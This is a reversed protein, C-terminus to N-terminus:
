RGLIRVREISIEPGPRLLGELPQFPLFWADIPDLELDNKYGDVISRFRIVEGVTQLNGRPLPLEYQAMSLPYDPTVLLFESGPLQGIPPNRYVEWGSEQRGQRADKLLLYPTSVIAGSTPGYRRYAFEIRRSISAASEEFQPECEPGGLWLIPRTKPVNNVIWRGALTRTDEMALLRVFRLSDWAQGATLFLLLAAVSYRLLRRPMLQPLFVALVALSPLAPLLYRQPVTHQFPVLVLFTSLVPQLILLLRPDRKWLGYGMATIAMALGWWGGSGYRLPLAIQKLASAVSWPPDGEQWGYLVKLISWVEEWAKEAQLIMYPNLVIFFLAVVLVAAALSRWPFREGRSQTGMWLASLFVTFLLLGAYKTTMSLALAGAGFWFARNKGKQNAALYRLGFWVVGTQFCISPIDTVGFHADRVALPAAAYTSAALCAWPHSMVHRAIGYVALVTASGFLAALLRAAIFYPTPELGFQLPPNSSMVHYLLGVMEIFLAPYAFTGPAGANKVLEVGSVVVLSEDPRIYLNSLIPCGFSLGWFRLLSGALVPVAWWLHKM